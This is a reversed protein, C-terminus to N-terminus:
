IQQKITQVKLTENFREIPEKNWKVTCIRKRNKDTLHLETSLYFISKATISPYTLLFDELNKDDIKYCHDSDKSFSLKDDIGLATKFVYLADDDSFVNGDKIINEVYEKLISERSLSNFLSAYGERCNYPEKRNVQIETIINEVGLLMSAFYLVGRDPDMAHGFRNIKIKLRDNKWHFRTSDTISSKIKDHTYNKVVNAYEEQYEKLLMRHYDDYTKITSLCKLLHSLKVSIDESHAICSLANEKVLLVDKDAETQWQIPYFIAKKKYALAIEIEDTFKSGGGFEHNMGKSSSSIKMVPVKFISSWYYVDSRQMKHDDTPISSSYEVLLVPFENGACLVTIFVDIDKVKRIRDIMTDNQSIAERSKKTYVNKIPCSYGLDSIYEKFDLGQELVEAYIRIEDIRM